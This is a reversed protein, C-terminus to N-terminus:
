MAAPVPPSANLASSGSPSFCTKARMSWICFVRRSFFCASATSANRGNQRAPSPTRASPSAAKNPSLAVGHYSRDEIGDDSRDEREERGREERPEGLEQVRPAHALERREREPGRASGREPDPRSGEEADRREGRERPSERGEEEELGLVAREAALLDAALAVVAVREEDEVDR